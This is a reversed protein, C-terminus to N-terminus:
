WRSMATTRPCMALNGTTSADAVGDISVSTFAPAPAIAAQLQRLPEAALV